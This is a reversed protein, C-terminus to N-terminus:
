MQMKIYSERESHAIIIKILRAPLPCRHHRYTLPDAKEAFMSLQCLTLKGFQCSYVGNGDPFILNIQHLRLQLLNLSDCIRQIDINIRKNAIVTHRHFDACHPIQQAKQHDAM